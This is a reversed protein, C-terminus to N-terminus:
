PAGAAVWRRVLAVLEADLPASGLPMQAGCPPRPDELKHVLLSMEPSGPVVRVNDTAGCQVGRARVGLLSERARGPELNMRGTPMDGSHCAPVACHVAFVREEVLELNLGGDSRPLDRPPPRTDEVFTDALDDRHETAADQAPSPSACAGGLALV